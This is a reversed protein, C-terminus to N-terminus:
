LERKDKLYSGFTVSFLWGGLKIPGWQVWDTIEKARKLALVM